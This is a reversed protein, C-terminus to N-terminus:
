SCAKCNPNVPYLPYAGSAITRLLIYRHFPRATDAAVPPFIHSVSPQLFNAQQPNSVCLGVLHWLCLSFSIVLTTSSLNILVSLSDPEDFPLNKKSASKALLTNGLPVGATLAFM